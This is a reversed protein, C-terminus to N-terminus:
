TPSSPCGSMSPPWPPPGGPRHPGACGRRGCGLGPTMRGSCTLFYQARKMVVGWNVWPPRTWPGGDGPRWSGGPPSWGLGRCGSCPTPLRRHKGGGPVPGPPGPGLRVQPGAPPRPHAPRPLPTGGGPLPLVVHLWDSQYLRHERLLPPGSPRPSPLLLNAGVPIYASFFVRKLRYKRYMGQSLKLIEYDSEGSAGVIM